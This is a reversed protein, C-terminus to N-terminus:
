LIGKSKDRKIEEQNANSISKNRSEENDLINM